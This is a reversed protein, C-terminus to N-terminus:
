VMAIFFGLLGDTMSEERTDLYACRRVQYTRGVLIENEYLGNGRVVLAQRDAQYDTIVVFPDMLSFRRKAEAVKEGGRYMAIWSPSGAEFSFSISRGM